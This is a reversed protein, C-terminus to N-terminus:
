VEEQQQQGQWNDGHNQLPHRERKPAIAKSIGTGDWTPKLSGLLDLGPASGVM